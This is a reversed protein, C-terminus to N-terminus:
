IVSNGVEGGFRDTFRKKVKRFLNLELDPNMEEALFIDRVFKDAEYYDRSALNEIEHPPLCFGLEVCIEDLYKRIEKELNM